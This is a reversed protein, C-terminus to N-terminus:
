PSMCLSNLRKLPLRALNGLTALHKKGIHTVIGYDAAHDNGHPIWRVKKSIAAEILAIQHEKRITLLSLPVGIQSNFSEPSAVVSHTTALCRKYCTKSWRRAM